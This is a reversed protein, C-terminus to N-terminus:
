HSITAIYGLILPVTTTLRAFCPKFLSRVRYLLCSLFLHLHTSTQHMRWCASVRRGGLCMITALPLNKLFTSNLVAFVPVYIDIAGKSRLYGSRRAERSSSHSRALLLPKVNRRRRRAFPPEGGTARLDSRGSLVICATHRQRSLFFASPQPLRKQALRLRHSRRSATPM